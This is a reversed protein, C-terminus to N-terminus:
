TVIRDIILPRPQPATPGVRYGGDLEAMAAGFREPTDTYLTFLPEGAAVPEGPRRHIRVGAGPQVTGGPSSRGAGLRWAAMGVAMADIDGMTGGRAATVTETHAGIPLPVSLDGGQAAVLRRFRDMATGDRLTQAPDRDDIGALALMEGALTLTLEVVDPPGGGALVELSEAVELANGVTAGLPSNMDTLLARTPVGHAAGLGVMIHALERAQAPSSTLAGSGVKVDLVLAGAGEALKKSMVSSAILPPSEVTGTIDRLAYLKADAPALEGAAFIAAGVQRLQERVRRNSLEGTFGAISELKDLTGGTHGLGRGSAQPVAAGCAAVVPVLPLTIKDGVGGTSHKDVTPVPLDTFDLRPGSALMAATWRAIEGRDMGRWVIAMLLASMQEDAVRGHTYADVVWDIAADSLRGGDRKTRIVTPADFTM